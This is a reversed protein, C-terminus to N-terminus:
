SRSAHHLVEDLQVKRPLHAATGLVRCLTRVAKATAHPVRLDWADKPAGHAVVWARMISPAHAQLDVPDWVDAEELAVPMLDLALLRRVMIVADWTEGHKVMDTVAAPEQVVQPVSSKPRWHRRVDLAAATWARALAGLQSPSLPLGLARGLLGRAKPPLFARAQRAKPVRWGHEEFLWLCAARWALEHLHQLRHWASGFTTRQVHFVLADATAELIAATIDRHCRRYDRRIAAFLGKPDAVVWLEDVDYLCLNDFHAAGQPTQILHTVWTKGRRFHRRTDQDWLVWLDVDSSPSPNGRAVSGTVAVALAGKRLLSRTEQLALAHLRLAPSPSPSM